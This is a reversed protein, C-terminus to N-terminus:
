LLVFDDGSLLFFPSGDLLTFTGSVPPPVIGTGEQHIDTFVSDEAFSFNPDFIFQYRSDPM